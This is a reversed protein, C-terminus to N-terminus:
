PQVIPSVLIPETQFVTPEATRLAEVQLPQVSSSTTVTVKESDRGPNKNFEVRVRFADDVAISGVPDYPPASSVISVKTIKPSSVEGKQLECIKSGGWSKDPEEDCYGWLGSFNIFNNDFAFRIKGWHHTGENKEKCASTGEPQVWKGTLVLESLNGIIRSDSYYEYTATIKNSSGDPFTMNGYGTSFNGEPSKTADCLKTGTWAKKTPETECYDFFGSFANFEENFEFNIRGWYTSGLFTSECSGESGQKLWFGVLRTGEFTGFVQAAGSEYTGSVTAGSNRPFSMSGYSSQWTGSLDAAQVECNILILTLLGACVITALKPFHSASRFSAIGQAVPNIIM